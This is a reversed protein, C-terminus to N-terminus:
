IKKDALHKTLFEAIGDVAYPWAFVIRVGPHRETAARVLNPIDVESHGGGPTFMTTVLTIAEAGDAVLADIADEVSPACFENYALVLRRPAIRPALARGISELGRKYPDTTDTRPWRRITHELEAERASPVPESRRARERALTKLEAVLETPTDTAIGGHGVLVVADFRAM